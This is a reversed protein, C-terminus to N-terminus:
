PIRITVRNPPFLRRTFIRSTEQKSVLMWPCVTYRGGLTREVSYGHDRGGLGCDSELEGM